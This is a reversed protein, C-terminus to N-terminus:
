RNTSKAHKEVNQTRTSDSQSQNIAQKCRATSEHKRNSEIEKKKAVTSQSCPRTTQASARARRNTRRAVRPARARTHRRCTHAGRRRRDCSRAATQRRSDRRRARPRASPTVAEKAKKKALIGPKSTPATSSRKLAFCLHHKFTISNKKKKKSFQHQNEPTKTYCFPICCNM